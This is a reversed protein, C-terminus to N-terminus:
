ETIEKEWGEGAARLQEIRQEVEMWFRISQAVFDLDPVLEHITLNLSGIQRGWYGEAENARCGPEETGLRELWRVERVVHELARRRGNLTLHVQSADYTELSLPEDFVRSPVLTIRSVLFCDEGENDWSAEMHRLRPVMVLQLQALDELVLNLQGTEAVDTITAPGAIPFAYERTVEKDARESKVRSAGYFQFAKEAAFGGAIQDSGEKDLSPRAVFLQVAIEEGEIISCPAQNAAYRKYISRLKEIKSWEPLAGQSPGGRVLELDVEIMQPSQPSQLEENSCPEKAWLMGPGFVLLSFTAAIIWNKQKKLM